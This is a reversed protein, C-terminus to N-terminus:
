FQVRVRRVAANEQDMIAIDLKPGEAMWEVKMLGYNFGQFVRGVRYQNKEVFPKETYHTMGSATIDYLPYSLGTDTQCSIEAHHRDGSLFVVGAAKTDNLLALMRQREAPFNGWKEYRHEFSVFQVSSLLIHVQATSGRLEKELWQWQEDGLVDGESGILDRHYRTDLAIVKVQQKGSGFTQASYVGKRARRPDDNPVDFFDLFLQQAAERRPYEKGGDNVGYDHDDWTGVVTSHKVLAAYGPTAKQQDYKAKLVAMDETDGYINDGTWIWIDPAQQLIREWLPQPHDQRNCSGFAITLTPAATATFTLLLAFLMAIASLTKNKM